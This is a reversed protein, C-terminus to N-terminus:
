QVPVCVSLHLTQGVTAFRTEGSYETVVSELVLRSASRMASSVPRERATHAARSRTLPALTSKGFPSKGPPTAPIFRKELHPVHLMRAHPARM